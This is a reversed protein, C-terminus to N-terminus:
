VTEFQRLNKLSLKRGSFVDTWYGHDIQRSVKPIQFVKLHIGSQNDQEPL